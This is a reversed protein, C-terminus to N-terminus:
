VGRKKRTQRYAQRETMKKDGVKVKTGGGGKAVKGMRSDMGASTGRNERTPIPEPKGTKKNKREGKMEPTKRWYDASATRFEEMQTHDATAANLEKTKQKVGDETDQSKLDQQANDLMQDNRKNFFPNHDHLKGITAHFPLASSVDRATNLAAGKVSNYIGKPTFMGYAKNALSKVEKVTSAGIDTLYGERPDTKSRLLLKELIRPANSSSGADQINLFNFLVLVFATKIVLNAIDANFIGFLNTEPINFTTIYDLNFVVPVLMLVIALALYISYLAMVREVMRDKWARFSTKGEGINQDKELPFKATWGPLTIYLLTIEFLRQILGWIIYFLSMFLSVCAFILVVYNIKLEDYLNQMQMNAGVFSYNVTFKGSESNSAVLENKTYARLFNLNIQVDPVLQSIDVGSFLNVVGSVFDFGKGGGSEQNQEYNFIESFNLGSPSIPDQRYYVINGGEERIATPYGTTAFIGRALFVTESRLTSKGDETKPAPALFNSKFKVGNLTDGLRVPLYFYDGSDGVMIKHCILYKAGTVEDTSGALSSYNLVGGDSMGHTVIAEARTENYYVPFDIHDVTIAGNVIKQATNKITNTNNLQLITENKENYPILNDLVGFLYNYTDPDKKVDPIGNIAIYNMVSNFVKEVNTVYFTGGSSMAFDVFDAMAFYEIQQTKLYGGDYLNYYTSGNSVSSFTYFSEEKFMEYATQGSMFHGSEKLENLQAEQEKSSSETIEPFETTASNEFGGDYDFVIPIKKGETAYVRYRNADYSSSAFIQAGLSFSGSKGTLAAMASALIVNSFVIGIILIFPVIMSTFVSILTKRLIKKISNQKGTIHNQWENKVIAMITFIILLLFSFILVATFMKVVFDNFLFQFLIDSEMLSSNDKLSFASAQGSLNKIVINMFDMINLCIKIIFYALRALCRLLFEGVNLLADVVSDLIGHIFMSFGSPDGAEKTEAVPTVRGRGNDLMLRSINLCFSSFKGFLLQM